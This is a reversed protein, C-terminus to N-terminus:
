EINGTLLYANDKSRAPLNSALKRNLRAIDWDAIGKSLFWHGANYPNFVARGVRSDILGNSSAKEAWKAWQGGAPFMKELAKVTAPDFMAALTEDPTDAQVQITVNPMKGPIDDSPTKRKEIPLKSGLERLVLEDNEIAQKIVNRWQLPANEGYRWRRKLDEVLDFPNMSTTTTDTAAEVKAGPTADTAQPKTVFTSAFAELDRGTIGLDAHTFTAPPELNVSVDLWRNTTASVVVSDHKLLHDLYVGELSLTNGTFFKDNFFKNDDGAFTRTGAPLVAQVNVMGKEGVDIIRRPTWQENTQAALYDAAEQLNNWPM